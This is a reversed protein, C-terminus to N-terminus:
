NSRIPMSEEHSSLNSQSITSASSFNQSSQAYEADISKLAEKIREKMTKWFEAREPYRIANGASFYYAEGLLQTFRIVEDPGDRLIKKALGMGKYRQVLWFTLDNFSPTNMKGQQDLNNFKM